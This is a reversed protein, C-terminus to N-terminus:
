ARTQSFAPAFTVSADPIDDVFPMVQLFPALPGDLKIPTDQVFGFRSYLAVDGLLIVGKAGLKRCAETGAEVLARGIGEGQRVRAVSIPGLALWGASGDSLTAPSFAVHGIVEGEGEAVLSLTLDGDARLRDVIFPEAGDSHPHDAFAEATVSHIAAEDGAREPRIAWSM